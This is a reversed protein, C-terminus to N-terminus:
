DCLRLGLSLSGWYHVDKAGKFEQSRGNITFGLYATDFFNFNVGTSGEFQYRRIDSHNITYVSNDAFLAGELTSNHLVHRLKPEIYINVRLLKKKKKMLIAEKKKKAPPTGVIYPTTNINCALNLGLSVDTMYSGLNTGLRYASAFNFGNWKKNAFQKLYNVNYNFTFVNDNGIQHHWGEPVIRKTGFLEEDHIYSQGDKALDLGLFGIYLESKLFSNKGYYEKGFSLATFSAYPRDGYQIESGLNQPTFATVSFAFTSRVYEANKLPIFPQYFKWEPTLLEVKVGGTYHDDDNRLNLFYAFSDNDHTVMLQYGGRDQSYSLNCVM